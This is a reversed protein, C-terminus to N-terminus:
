LSMSSSPCLALSVYLYLSMSISLSVSLFMSCSPYLALSLSLSGSLLMSRSPCLALPVYLWLSLGSCRFKKSKIQSIRKNALRQPSACRAGSTEVPNSRLFDALWRLSCDCVFPNQALHSLLLVCGCVPRSLTLM